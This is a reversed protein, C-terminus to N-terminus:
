VTIKLKNKNYKLPCDPVAPYTGKYFIIQKDEFVPTRTKFLSHPCLAFFVPRIAGDRKGIMQFTM